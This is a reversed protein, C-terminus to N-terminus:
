RYFGPMTPRNRWMLEAEKRGQELAEEIEADTLDDGCVLARQVQFFLILGEEDTM